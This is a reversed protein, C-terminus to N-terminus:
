RKAEPQRREFWKWEATYRGHATLCVLSKFWYLKLLAWRLSVGLQSMLFREGWRRGLDRRAGQCRRGAFAGACLTYTASGGRVHASLYAAKGGQASMFRHTPGTCPFVSCCTPCMSKYSESLSYIHQIILIHKLWSPSKIRIMCTIIHNDSYFFWQIQQIEQLKDITNECPKFCDEGM